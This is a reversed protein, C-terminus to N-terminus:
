IPGRGREREAEVGTFTIENTAGRPWSCKRSPCLSLMDFRRRARGRFNGLRSMRFIRIGGRASGMQRRIIRVSTVDARSM